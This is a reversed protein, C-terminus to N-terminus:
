RVPLSPLGHELGDFGWFNPEPLLLVDSHDAVRRQITRAFRVVEAASAGARAVIALAHRRSLGVPGEPRGREFGAREILWAAALKVRGDSTPWAPVPQGPFAAILQQHTSASVIPNTFFSGCSRSDPDSADFVMSKSRRLQLVLERVEAPSPASGGRAELAARLEAYRLAPPERQLRYSVEVIVYRGPQASKFLSDRYGFGCETGSLEVLQHAQRDFARVTELTQAVEQGYAGVNQLPTAGVTGPIGSLCELGSYGASCTAQVLEDWSAGAGATVLLEEGRPVLSPPTPAWCLVLGPVGGDAIVLNSGGGLLQVPLRRADAWALARRLADVSGLQLFYEASGGVGLTTRPALPVRQAPTSM